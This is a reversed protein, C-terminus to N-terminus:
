IRLMEKKEFRRGKERPLKGNVATIAMKNIIFSATFVATFKSRYVIIVTFQLCLYLATYLLRFICVYIYIRLKFKELYFSQQSPLSPGPGPPSPTSSKKKKKWVKNDGFNNHRKFLVIM